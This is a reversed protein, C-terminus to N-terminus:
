WTLVNVEDFREKEGHKRATARDTGGDDMRDSGVAWIQRRDKSYRLPQGDFDDLPVRDLYVPVLADLSDPLAGNQLEYARLALFVRTAALAHNERCKLRLLGDHGSENFDALLNGVANGSILARWAPRRKREAMQHLPSEAWSLTLSALRARSHAALRGHTKRPDFLFRPTVVSVGSNTSLPISGVTTKLARWVNEIDWRIGNSLGTLNAPYPKLEEAFRVLVEAPAKGHGVARRIAGLAKMKVSAARMYQLSDGGADELRHAFAVMEGARKLFGEPDDFFETEAEVLALDALPSWGAEPESSPNGSAANIGEPPETLECQPQGMAEHFLRLTSAETELLRRTAAAVSTQNTHRPPLLRRLENTSQFQAWAQALLAVANGQTGGSPVRPKLDAYDDAVVARRGPKM